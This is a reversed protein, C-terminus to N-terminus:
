SRRRHPLQKRLMVLGFPIYNGRGMNKVVNMLREDDPPFDGYEGLRDFITGFFQLMVTEVDFDHLLESFDSDRLVLSPRMFSPRELLSLLRECIQDLQRNQRAVICFLGGNRLAGWSSRIAFAYRDIDGTVNIFNSSMILNYHLESKKWSDDLDDVIHQALLPDMDEDEDLYTEILDNRVNHLERQMNLGCFNGFVRYGQPYGCSRNQPELRDPDCQFLYRGFDHQFAYFEDSYEIYSFSFSSNALRDLQAYEGYAKLFSCIDSLALLVQGPGSGLDLVDSELDRVPFWGTRILHLAIIQTRYYRALYWLIAYAHVFNRKQFLDPDAEPVPRNANKLNSIINHCTQDDVLVNDLVYNQLVRALFAFRTKLFDTEKLWQLFGPAAALLSKRKSMRQPKMEKM